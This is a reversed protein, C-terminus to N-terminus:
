FQFYVFRQGDAGFLLLYLGLCWYASWRLARPRGAIWVAPDGQTLRHVLAVGLMGLFALSAEIRSPSLQGVASALAWPGVGGFLRGQYTWGDSLSTARFFAWTPLLLHELVVLTGNLLGWVLFGGAAGHWLGSLGFTILINITQRRWTGRNGGLGLVQLLVALRLHRGGFSGAM